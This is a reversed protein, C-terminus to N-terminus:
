DCPKLADLIVGSLSHDRLAEYIISIWSGITKKARGNIKDPMDASPHETFGQHFPIGLQHRVALYIAKSGVGLYDPTNQTKCFRDIAQKYASELKSATAEKWQNIDKLVNRTMCGCDSLQISAIEDLITPLSKDVVCRCRDRIDMRSTSSWASQIVKALGRSLKEQAHPRLIDEFVQRITSALVSQTDHFFNLQLVRLDLAQCAVYISCAGMMSVLDVAQMTYRASLFALSNVAQNHMEATQVHTSIPNAIYALESMYSAMNIDVGKMTFSLSPDDAVLNTPLGNNLDPDIMENCQAFILKGFMQLVLRTKEMASTVSTAQFNGGCYFTRTASDILPNDTTSNLEISVQRDALALDELQPGIWQSATRLAYRDQVLGAAEHSGSPGRALRSEQLASLINAATEIQGEHPRVDSLFPHFSETTGCLAEVTLATVVQSLLALQHADYLVLSALAASAATGNVLGLGEKPGLTIRPISLRDLEQEATVPQAKPSKGRVFIGPSGEIVGAIYALPMLDGSASITGRLPIVPTVDERILKLIAEISARSVASHGRSVSNCRVIMTARVWETPMSHSMFASSGSGSSSGTDAGALIGSQLLQLLSKQLAHLHNTRSDASGGFGTNVGYIHHGNALCEDLATVSENIMEIINSDNSLHPQCGHKSVAVVGGITLGKGDIIIEGCEIARNLDEWHTRALALHGPLQYKSLM